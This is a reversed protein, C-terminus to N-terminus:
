GPLTRPSSFAVLAIKVRAPNQEEGSDNVVAAFRRGDM